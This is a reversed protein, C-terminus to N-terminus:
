RAVVVGLQAGIQVEFQQLAKLVTLLRTVEDVDKEVKLLEMNDKIMQQVNRWKLRLIATDAAYQLMDRENPVLIQHTEWNPSIEFKETMLHIAEQRVEQDSHNIFFDPSIFPSHSVIEQFMTVLRSFIPITFEVDDLQELVYTVFPQEDPLKHSSYNVLLRVM